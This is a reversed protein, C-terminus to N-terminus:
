MLMSIGNIILLHAPYFVYFFYKLNLKGRKGSYLLLLILAILSYGSIGGCSIVMILLGVGMTLVRIFNLNINKLFGVLEKESEFISAFVPLMCGIFGYDIEFFLNILFTAGIGFVFLVCASIKEGSGATSSFLAKKM